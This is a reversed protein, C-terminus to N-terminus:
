SIEYTHEIAEGCHGSHFQDLAGLMLVTFWGVTLL